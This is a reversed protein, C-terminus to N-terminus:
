RSWDGLRNGKKFSVQLVSMTDQWQKPFADGLNSACLQGCKIYFGELELIKVLGQKSTEEDLEKWVSDPSQRWSHYRYVVYKPIALSYFSISRMLGETGGVHDHFYKVGGLVTV